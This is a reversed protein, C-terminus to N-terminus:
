TASFMGHIYCNMTTFLLKNVLSQTYTWLCLCLLTSQSEVSTSHFKKMILACVTTTTVVLLLAGSGAAGIITFVISDPM